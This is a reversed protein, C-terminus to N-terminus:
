STDSSLQLTRYMLQRPRLRSALMQEQSHSQPSAVQSSAQYGRAPSSVSSAPKGNPGKAQASRLRQRLFIEEFGGGTRAPSAQHDEGRQPTETGFFFSMESDAVKTSVPFSKAARRILEKARQVAVFCSSQEITKRMNWQALWKDHLKQLTERPLFGSGELNGMLESYWVRELKCQLERCVAATFTEYDEAKLAVLEERRILMHVTDRLECGLSNYRLLKTTESCFSNVSEHMESLASRAQALVTSLRSDAAAGVVAVSAKRKEAIPTMSLARSASSISMHLESWTEKVREALGECSQLLMSVEDFQFPNKIEAAAKVTEAAFLSALLTVAAEAANTPALECRVLLEIFASPRVVFFESATRVSPSADPDAILDKVANYLEAKFM